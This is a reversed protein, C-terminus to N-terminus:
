RKKSGYVNETVIAEAVELPVGKAALSSLQKFIEFDEPLTFLDGLEIEDSCVIVNQGLQRTQM